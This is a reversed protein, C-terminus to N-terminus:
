WSWQSASHRALITVCPLTWSDTKGHKNLLLPIGKLSIQQSQASGRPVSSTTYSLFPPTLKAHASIVTNTAKHTNHL